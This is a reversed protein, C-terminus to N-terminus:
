WPESHHYIECDREIGTFFDILKQLNTRVLAMPLDIAICFCCIRRAPERVSHSHLQQFAEEYDSKLKMKLGKLLERYGEQVTGFLSINVDSVNVTKVELLADSFQTSAHLDPTRSSTPPIFRIKNYGLGQLYNYGQVKNLTEFLASWHRKKSTDRRAVFPAAREIINQRSM